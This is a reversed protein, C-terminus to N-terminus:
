GTGFILLLSTLIPEYSLVVIFHQFSKVIKPGLPMWISLEFGTIVLYFFYAIVVLTLVVEMGM